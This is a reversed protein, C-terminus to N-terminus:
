RYVVGRKGILQVTLNNPDAIAVGENDFVIGAGTVRNAEEANIGRFARLGIARGGGLEQPAASQAGWHGHMPVGAITILPHESLDEDVRFVHTEAQNARSQGPM